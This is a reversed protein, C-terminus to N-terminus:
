AKHTYLGFLSNEYLEKRVGGGRSAEPLYKQKRKVSLSLPAGHPSIIQSPVRLSQRQTLHELEPGVARKATESNNESNSLSILSHSKNM